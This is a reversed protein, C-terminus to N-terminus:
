PRPEPGDDPPCVGPRPFWTGIIGEELLRAIDEVPLGLLTGLVDRNHYGLPRAAWTRRGPSGSLKPAPGYDALSGYMEDEMQWVSGRSRFHPSEHHDRASSVPASGFGLEAGLRDVEACACSAAWEQVLDWLVTANAPAHRDEVTAFRPDHPLDPRGMAQALAAFEEDTGAAVACWGDRCGVIGSPSVAVDRNGSRGRNLGTLGAYVWTWDLARISGEVQTGEIYQGIGTRERYELATLVAVANMLAVFFDGIFTGLKQPPRGPFGGIECTGSLAQALLDYSPRGALPGWQGFGTASLYILRPNVERVQRYGLGWRETTGPRFNEVMVDARRLLRLFVAQGEARRVDLALHYKGHNMAAFGICLNRWYYGEPPVYRMTDGRGPLEVKIVEAGFEGLFDCTAPGLIINALEVVRIGALAEPKHPIQAPDFLTATWDFYDQTV